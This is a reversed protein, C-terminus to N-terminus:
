GQAAAGARFAAVLFVAIMALACALRAATSCLFGVGAGIGALLSARNSKKAVLKEAAAAGLFAGLLIAPLSIFMGVFAGGGAGAMGWKGGGFLRAGLMVGGFDAFVSLLWLAAVCGVVMWPLADPLLLKNLIAAGLIITTGPLLPIVVGALGVLLLFVTLMWALAPDM